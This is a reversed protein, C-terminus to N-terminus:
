TMMLRPGQDIKLITLDNDVDRNDADRNKIRRKRKKRLSTLNKLFNLLSPAGIDHM